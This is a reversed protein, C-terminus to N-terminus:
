RKLLHQMQNKIIFSSPYGARQWSGVAKGCHDGPFPSISKAIATGEPRHGSSNLTSGPPPSASPCGPSPLREPWAGWRLGSERGLRQSGYAEEKGGAVDLNFCRFLSAWGSFHSFGPSRLHASWNVEDGLASTFHKTWGGRDQRVWHVASPETAHMGVSLPLCCAAVPPMQRDRQQERQGRVGAVALGGISHLSWRPAWQAGALPCAAAAAAATLFSGCAVSTPQYLVRTGSGRGVAEDWQRM